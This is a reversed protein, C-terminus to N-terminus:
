VDHDGSKESHLKARIAAVSLRHALMEASEATIGFMISGRSGDEISIHVTDAVVDVTCNMVGTPGGSGKGHRRANLNIIDAM